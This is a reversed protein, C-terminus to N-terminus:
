AGTGSSGTGAAGRLAGLWLPCLQAPLPVQAGGVSWGAWNPAMSIDSIRVYLRRQPALRPSPARARGGESGPVAGAGAAASGAGGQHHQHHHNLAGRAAAGFPDATM